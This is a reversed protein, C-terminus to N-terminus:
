WIPLPADADPGLHLGLYAGVTPAIATMRVLGLDGRRSLGPAVLVLSAFLDPRDPAYGHNGLGKSPASWEGVVSPSFDFGEQADLVLPWRAAGGLRAIQESDLIARLGSRPDRVRPEFLERVRAVLGEEAPDHLVLGASGGHTHFFAQWSTVRGEPTVAVLGAGRLVTNPALSRSVPLFGHDSVVMVATRETAGIQDLAALVLGIRTDTAEVAALTEPARPGFHHSASDVAVLHLLVLEPAYAKLVHIAIDVREDDTIPYAFPRGRERTVADILGPTSVADLLDLDVRSESGPRWFEPFNWDSGIGVSVPWWITATHLHAERAASVLSPAKVYKAYWNWADGTQKEPDFVTNSEIGHIRPPVGTILTTHSPYTVSPLVGVVGSAFVGREMLRRLNPVKVGSAEPNTYCAPRLGDVSIVVAARPPPEAGRAHLPSVVLALFLAWGAIRRRMTTTM